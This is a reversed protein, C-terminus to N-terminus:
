PGRRHQADIMVAVIDLNSLDANPELPGARGSPMNGRM